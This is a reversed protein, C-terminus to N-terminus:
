QVLILKGSAITIQSYRGLYSMGLLSEDLEGGNVAAVVNRETVGQLSLTDITIPATRVEGNATRARGFFPLTDPDFGAREADRKSLVVNSAGTDVIFNVPTGNVDLSLRYHGDPSQPIEIRGEASHVTATPIVTSRIDGWMGYAAIIGVFILVWVLIQQVTKSLSQRNSAVFWFVIAAGLVAFYSLQAIQDGSM